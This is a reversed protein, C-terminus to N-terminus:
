KTSFAAVVFDNNSLICSDEGNGTVPVFVADSQKVEVVEKAGSMNIQIKSDEETIPIIVLYDSGEAYSSKLIDEDSFNYLTTFGRAELEGDYDLLGKVIPVLRKTMLKTLMFVPHAPGFKDSFIIPRNDDKSGIFHILNRESGSLFGQTTHVDINNVKVLDISM